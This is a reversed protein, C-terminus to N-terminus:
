PPLEEKMQRRRIYVEDSYKKERVSSQLGHERMIRRIRRFGAKKGTEKAVLPAMQRYGISNHHEEQLESIAEALLDDDCTKTFIHHHYKYFGCRSVGAIACLRMVNRRGSQLCREIAIFLDKKGPGYREKLIENLSELFIVKYKLYEIEKKLAKCKKVLNEDAQKKDMLTEWASDLALSKTDTSQQQSYYLALLDNRSRYWNQVSSYTKNYDLSVRHASLGSDIAKICRIKEELPIKSPRRRIRKISGEPTFSLAYAAKLEDKKRAWRYCVDNNTISLARAAEAVTEKKELTDLFKIKLELTYRRNGM